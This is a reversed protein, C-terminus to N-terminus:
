RESAPQQFRTPGEPSSNISMAGQKGVHYDATVVEGLSCAPVLPSRHDPNAHALGSSADNGSRSPFLTIMTRYPVISTSFQNLTAIPACSLTPPPRHGDVNWASGEDCGLGGRLLERQHSCHNQSKMTRWAMTRAPPPNLTSRLSKRLPAREELGRDASLRLQMRTPRVTWDMARQRFPWGSPALSSLRVNHIRAGLAQKDEATGNFARLSAGLLRQQM